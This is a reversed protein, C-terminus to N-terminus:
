FDSTCVEIANKSCSETCSPTNDMKIRRTICTYNSLSISVAIGDSVRAPDSKSVFSISSRTITTPRYRSWPWPRHRHHTINWRCARGILHPLLPHPSKTYGRSYILTLSFVIRPHGRHQTLLSLARYEIMPTGCGAAHDQAQSLPNPLPADSGSGAIWDVGSDTNGIGAAM